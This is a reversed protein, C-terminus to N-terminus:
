SEYEVEYSDKAEALAADFDFKSFRAWYMLSCLLDHLCGEYGSTCKPLHDLIANEGWVARQLNTPAREPEPEIPRDFFKFANCPETHKSM